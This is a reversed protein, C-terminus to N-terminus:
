RYAKEAQATDGAKVTQYARQMAVLPEDVTIKEVRGYIDKMFCQGMVMNGLEKINDDNVPLGVHQLI